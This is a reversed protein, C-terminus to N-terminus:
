EVSDNVGKNMQDQEYIQTIDKLYSKQWEIKGGDELNSVFIDSGTVIVCRDIRTGDSSKILELRRVKHDRYKAQMGQDIATQASFRSM